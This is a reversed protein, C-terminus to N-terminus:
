TITTKVYPVEGRFLDVVLLWWFQNHTEPPHFKNSTMFILSPLYGFLFGAFVIWRTCIRSHGLINSPPKTTKKKEKRTSTSQM